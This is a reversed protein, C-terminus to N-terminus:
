GWRIWQELVANLGALALVYLVWTILFAHLPIGEGLHTPLFTYLSHLSSMCVLCGCVPRNLTPYHKDGFVRLGHLIMNEQTAKFFGVCMFSNLIVLYFYDTLSFDFIDIM